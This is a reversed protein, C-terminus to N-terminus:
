IYIYIDMLYIWPYMVLSISSNAEPSTWPYIWPYAIAIDMSISVSVDMSLHIPAGDMYVDVSIVMSIDVSINVFGHSHIQLSGAVGFRSDVRITGPPTKIVAGSVGTFVEM